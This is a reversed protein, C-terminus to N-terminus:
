CYNGVNEATLVLLITNYPLMNAEDWFTMGFHVKVTCNQREQLSGCHGSQIFVSYFSESRTPEM